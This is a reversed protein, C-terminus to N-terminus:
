TINAFPNVHNWIIHIHISRAALSTPSVYHMCPWADIQKHLNYLGFCQINAPKQSEDSFACLDKQNRATHNVENYSLLFELVGLCITLLINTHSSACTNIHVYTSVHMNIHVYMCINNFCNRTRTWFKIWLRHIQASFVWSHLPQRRNDLKSAAYILTLSPFYTGCQFGFISCATPRCLVQVKRQMQITCPGSPVRLTRVTLSQWVANLYAALCEYILWLWGM